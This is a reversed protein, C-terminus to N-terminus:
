PTELNLHYLDSPPAFLLNEGPKIDFSALLFLCNRGQVVAIRTCAFAVIHSKSIRPPEAEPWNWSSSSPEGTACRAPSRSSPISTSTPSSAAVSDTPVTSISRALACPSSTPRRATPTSCPSAPLARYILSSRSTYHGSTREQESSHTARLWGAYKTRRDSWWRSGLESNTRSRRRSSTPFARLLRPSQGSCWTAARSTPSLTAAARM